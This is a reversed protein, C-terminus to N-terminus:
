YLGSAIILRPLLLLVLVSPRSGTLDSEQKTHGLNPENSMPVAGGFSPSYDPLNSAIPMSCSSIFVHILMKVSSQKGSQAGRSTHTFQFEQRM